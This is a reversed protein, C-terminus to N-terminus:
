NFKRDVSREVKEWNKAAKRMDLKSDMVMIEVIRKCIHSVGKVRTGKSGGWEKFQQFIFLDIKFTCNLPM